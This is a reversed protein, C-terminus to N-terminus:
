TRFMTAAMRNLQHVRYLIMGFPLWWSLDNALIMWGASWPIRTQLAYYFFGIPGLVKGLLGVLVLPWHRLPHSSAVAYGVGYVGVVMGLCQWIEPYTPPALGAWTFPILPFLVIFAGWIINYAAAGILVIRM